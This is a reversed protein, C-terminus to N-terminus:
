YDLGTSVEKLVATRRSGQNERHWRLYHPRCHRLELYVKEIKKM